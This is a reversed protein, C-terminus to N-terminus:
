VLFFSVSPTRNLIEWQRLLLLFDAKIINCAPTGHIESYLGCCSRKFCLVKLQVLLLYWFIKTHLTVCISILCRVLTKLTPKFLIFKHCSLRLFNLHGLKLCFLKHSYPFYSMYGTSVSLYGCGPPLIGWVKRSLGAVCATRSVLFPCWMRRQM